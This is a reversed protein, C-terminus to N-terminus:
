WGCTRMKSTVSASPLETPSNRASQYVRADLCPPAHIFESTSWLWRSPSFGTTTLLRLMGLGGSPSGVRSVQSWTM